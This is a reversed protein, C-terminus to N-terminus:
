HQTKVHVLRILGSNVKERIFHCDIEVHKSREHFTPNTFRHITSQNNCFVLASDVTLEFDRLLAVMWTIESAVAALSSFKAKASFRSVISQKKSNWSVLSTGLFVCFGITSRRTDICSEWDADVYGKLSLSSTTSFFLCQGPSTKLYRLLHHLANLHPVWPSSMYQSLKHVAYGIDPESITLYMLRGLLRWYVSGDEILDGKTTSLKLNPDM